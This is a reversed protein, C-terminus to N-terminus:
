NCAQYFVPSNETHCTPDQSHTQQNILDELVKEFLSAKSICIVNEFVCQHSGHNITATISTISLCIDTVRILFWTM